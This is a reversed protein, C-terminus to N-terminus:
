YEDSFKIEMGYSSNTAMRDDYKATIKTKVTKLILPTDSYIQALLKKFSVENSIQNYISTTFGYEKLFPQFENDFFKFTSFDSSTKIDVRLNNLLDKIADTDEIETNRYAAGM